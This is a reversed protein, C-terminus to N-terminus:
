VPQKCSPHCGVCGGPTATRLVLQKVHQDATKLPCGATPILHSAAISDTARQPMYEGTFASTELNKLQTALQKNQFKANLTELGPRM